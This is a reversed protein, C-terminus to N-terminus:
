PFVAVLVDFRYGPYSITEPWYNQGPTLTRHRFPELAGLRM